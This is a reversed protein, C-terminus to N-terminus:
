SAAMTRAAPRSLFPRPESSLTELQRGVVRNRGAAKAEYLCRDAEGLLRSEVASVEGTSKALVAGISITVSLEGTAMTVPTNQVMTRLREAMTVLQPLSQSTTLVAFEEGGFRALVDGGRISQQLTAAVTQLVQDGVLHGHTDNISKFRDIDGLLMGLWRQDRQAQAIQLQMQQHLFRRNHLGTLPDTSSEHHLKDIRRHLEQNETTLRQLEAAGGREGAEPELILRTLQQTAEALLQAASAHQEAQPLSFLPANAELQQSVSQVLWEVDEDLNDSLRRYAEHLQILAKGRRSSTLFDAARGAVHIFEALPGVSAGGGPSPFDVDLDLARCFAEPLQWHEFLRRSLAHSTLGLRREEVEGRSASTGAVELLCEEFEQRAHRILALDGVRCMLGVTFAENIQCGGYREALTKASLALALSKRWYEALRNSEPGPKSMVAALSLSLALSGTVRKGLSMAARNLDGIPRGSNYRASNAASLVKVTLTPDTQILRTLEEIQFDTRSTCRLIEVAVTPLIPLQSLQELSLRM